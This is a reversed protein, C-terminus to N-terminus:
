DSTKYYSSHQRKRKIGNINSDPNDLLVSIQTRCSKVNAITNNNLFKESTKAKTSNTKKNDDILDNFLDRHRDAGSKKVSALRSDEKYIDINEEDLNEHSVLNNLKLILDIM